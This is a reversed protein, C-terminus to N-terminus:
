FYIKLIYVDGLPVSNISLGAWRYKFHTLYWIVSRFPFTFKSRFGVCACSNLTCDNFRYPSFLLPNSSCAYTNTRIKMRFSFMGYCLWWDDNTWDDNNFNVVVLTNPRQHLKEVAAQWSTMLTFIRHSMMFSFRIRERTQMWNVKWKSKYENWNFEMKYKQNSRKLWQVNFCCDLYVTHAKTVISKNHLGDLLLSLACYLWNFVYMTWKSHLSLRCDVYFCCFFWCISVRFCTGYNIRILFNPTCIEILIM